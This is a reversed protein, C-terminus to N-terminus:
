PLGESNNTCNKYEATEQWACATVNTNKLCYTHRWECDNNTPNFYESTNCGKLKPCNDGYCPSIQCDCNPGYFRRAGARQRQTVQSWKAIWRCLHLKLKSNFIKGTIFYVKGNELWDVGCAAGDKHTYAKAFLSRQRSGYVQIGETQNLESAGKFTKLIRLGIVLSEEQIEQSLVKARVVFDARCFSEQPHSPMCSCAESASVVALLFAVKFLM